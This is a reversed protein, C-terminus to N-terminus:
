WLCLLLCLNHCIRFKRVVCVLKRCPFPLSFIHAKSGERALYDVDCTCWWRGSECLDAGIANRFIDYESTAATAATSTTDAAARTGLLKSHPQGGM